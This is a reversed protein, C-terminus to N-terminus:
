PIAQHYGYGEFGIPLEYSYSLKITKSMEWYFKDVSWKDKLQQLIFMSKLMVAFNNANVCDVFLWVNQALSIFGSRTHKPLESLVMQTIEPCSIQPSQYRIHFKVLKEAWRRQIGLVMESQDERLLEHHHYIVDLQRIVTYNLSALKLRQHLILPTPFVHHNRCDSKQCSAFFHCIHSSVDPIYYNGYDVECILEFIHSALFQKMKLHFVDVEYVHWDDIIEHHIEDQIHLLPNDLFIKREHPRNEVENVFFIDEFDKCIKEINDANQHPAIFPFTLECLRLLCQLRENLYQASQPTIQLFINVACFEAVLEKSSRFFQICKHVTDLDEDLYASYLQFEKMFNRWEEPKKLSQSKFKKVFDSAKALLKNVEHKSNTNTMTDKIINVRFLPLFHKLAEITDKSNIDKLGIIKDAAEEFKGRSCLEKVVSFYQGGKEYVKLLEEPAHDRLLEMREEETPLIDLAKESMEKDNERRYHINVLRSIRNFTKEDIEQKYRTLIIQVLTLDDHEETFIKKCIVVHNNSHFYEKSFDIKDFDLIEILGNKYANVAETYKEAKQFNNGAKDWKKAKLYCNAAFEFMDFEEYVDGAKGHMNIDQYCSAAQVPRLCNKFAEAACEFNHNVTAEDSGYISTRAIQRLHYAEALKRNEKNGSKKFCFIAQEYRKQGFFGKGKQNWEYSNSKKALSPLVKINDIVKVLEHHKWYKRIPGSCESNEDYIWIKQRARTVAVYLHKLESSLIYHKEHSFPQVGKSHGSFAPHIARWELQAPSETFFNYLVVDNFEMGKSEFVTLVLVVDDDGIIKTVRQRTEDDRVIIVQEAGFEINNAVNKAVSFVHSLFPEAEINHIVIPQPGGVEGSEHPLRDISDPFFRSILDIVSSALKLIGNHSRYNINMVFRELEWNYLLARLDEFRFSSGRAICQAIDGALFISDAREFLKLILSLDVMNNDQCEDIYLEHIHLGGLPEKKACRLIAIAMDISDYDSYHSKKKEYQQFLDYIEDRNYCFAPYKRISIERYEERSLHKGEPNSGKIISFESFILGSKNRYYNTCYKDVFLKYDVFNRWSADSVSSIFHYTGQLMKIFKKYTIILPFHVDTLQHFSNPIDDQMDEEELKTDNTMDINGDEEGKRSLYEHFQAMTMREDAFEASERLKNFHDKVRCCLHGSLTIFIQRKHSNEDNDNPIRNFQNKLYSALLRFLICTTKGTGSRGVVIASRPHNIIEYELKSVQFTFDTGGKVLSKFLNKSLPVFKNTTLMGHIKLLKEEDDIQDSDLRSEDSKTVEEGGFAAPLIIGDRSIHQVTCRNKHESTYVQHLLETNELTDTFQKQDATAAWVDVYQIFSNNRVSFGYDVQWLIKLGDDNLLETEYIPVAHSHSQVTHQLRYKKWKGSSIQMLKVMVAKIALPELRRMDRIAYDSLLVDWPGLEDDNIEFPLRFIGENM